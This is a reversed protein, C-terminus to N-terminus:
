SEPFEAKGKRKIVVLLAADERDNYYDIADEIEYTSFELPIYQGYEADKGVVVLLSGIPLEEYM